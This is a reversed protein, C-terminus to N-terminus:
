AVLGNQTLMNKERTAPKQIDVKQIFKIIDM